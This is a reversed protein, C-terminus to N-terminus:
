RYLMLRLDDGIGEARNALDGLLQLIKQWLMLPVPGLEDEHRFLERAFTYISKDVEYELQGIRQIMELVREAEPGGFSAEVLEDLQEILEQAARCADLTQDVIRLLGPRLAEPLVLEERLSAVVVLDECLDALSDQQHLLALLDRRDVMLFLSRPLHDRIDNKVLDAEHELKLVLKRIERSREADGALFADFFPRLHSWTEAVKEMHKQLAGFPSRGFLPLITRM